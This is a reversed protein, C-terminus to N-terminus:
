EYRHNPHRDEDEKTNLVKDRNLKLGQRRKRNLEHIENLQNFYEEPRYFDNAKNSNLLGTKLFGPNENPVLHALNPGSLPNHSPVSHQNQIPNGYSDLAHPSDYSSKEPDNDLPQNEFHPTDLIETNGSGQPIVENSGKNAKILNTLQDLNINYKTPGDISVHGKILPKVIEDITATTPLFSADLKPPKISALNVEFNDLNKNLDFDINGIHPTNHANALNLHLKIDDFDNPKDQPLHLVHIEKDGTFTAPGHSGSSLGLSIDYNNLSTSLGNTLSNFKDKNFNNLLQIQKETSLTGSKIQELTHEDLNDCYIYHNIFYPGNHLVNLPTSPKTLIRSNIPSLFQNTIPSRKFPRANGLAPLRSPAPTASITLALSIVFYLLTKMEM